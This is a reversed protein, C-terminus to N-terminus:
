LSLSFFIMIMLYNNVFISIELRNNYYFNYIRLKALFLSISLSFSLSFFSYLIILKEM